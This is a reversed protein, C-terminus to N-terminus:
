NSSNMPALDSENESSPGSGAGNPLPSLSQAEIPRAAAATLDVEPMSLRLAESIATMIPEMERFGFMRAVDDRKLMPQADVLGAWLIDRMTAIPAGLGERGEMKGAAVLEPGIRRVDNLLDGGCESAYKIFALARFRLVYEQGDLKVPVSSPLLNTM